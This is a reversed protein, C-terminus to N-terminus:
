GGTRPKWWLLLATGILLGVMVDVGPGKRKVFKCTGYVNPPWNPDRCSVMGPTDECDAWKCGGTPYNPGYAGHVCVCKWVNPDTTLVTVGGEQTGDAMARMRYDTNGVRAQLVVEGIRGSAAPVLIGDVKVGDIDGSCAIRCPHSTDFQMRADHALTGDAAFIMLNGSGRDWTIVAGSIKDRLHLTGGPGNDQRLDVGKVMLQSWLAQAIRHGSINTCLVTGDDVRTLRLRVRFTAHKALAVHVLVSNPENDTVVFGEAPLGGIEGKWNLRSPDSLDFTFQGSHSTQGGPDLVEFAGTAFNIVIRTGDGQLLVADDQHKEGTVDIGFDTLKDAVPRGLDGALVVWSRMANINKADEGTLSTAVVASLIFHVM